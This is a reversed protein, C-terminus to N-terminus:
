TPYVQRLIKTEVCSYSNNGLPPWKWVMMWVMKALSSLVMRTLVDVEELLAVELPLKPSTLTMMTMVIYGMMEVGVVAVEVGVGQVVQYGSVMRMLVITIMVLFLPVTPMQVDAVGVEVVVVGVTEVDPNGHTSPDQTVSPVCKRMLILVTQYVHVYTGKQGQSM